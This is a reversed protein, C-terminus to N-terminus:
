RPGLLACMHALGGAPPPGSCTDAPPSWGASGTHGKCVSWSGASTTFFFGNLILTM